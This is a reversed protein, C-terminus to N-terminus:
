RSNMIQEEVHYRLSMKGQWFMFIWRVSVSIVAIWKKLKIVTSRPPLRKLFINMSKGIKKAPPFM